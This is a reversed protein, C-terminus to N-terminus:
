RRGMERAVDMAVRYIDRPTAGAALAPRIADELAGPTRQPAAEAGGEVVLTIEGRPPHASFHARLESVRGRVFEEHIKTLERAVAARRDGMTEGIEELTDVLRNPAEFLILTAPDARLSALRARRKGAARPLFGVFRFESPPLGSGCLAAIAACPGPLVTVPLGADICLRLLRYGPDSVLPTGADSILAVHEGARIRACLDEARRAENGEFYSVLPRRLGIRQLLLGARRTDEAAIVDAASLTRLARPSLDELNGIPTGVISLRGNAETV